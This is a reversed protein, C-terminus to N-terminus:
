IQFKFVFSRAWVSFEFEFNWTPHQYKLGSSLIEIDHLIELQNQTGFKINLSVIEIDFASNLVWKANSNGIEFEFKFNRIGVWFKLILLLIEFENVVNNLNSTQVCFKQCLNFVWIWFKLSLSLIEDELKFNWSQLFFIELESRSKHELNWTRLIERQITINWVLVRFKLPM